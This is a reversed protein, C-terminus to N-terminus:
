AGECNEPIYEEFKEVLRDLGKQRATDYANTGTADELVPCKGVEELFFMAISENGSIVAAQLVDRGEIGSSNSGAGETLLLRAVSPDDFANQAAHFIPPEIEEAEGGNVDFGINILYEVIQKEGWGAAWHLLPQKDEAYLDPNLLSAEHREVLVDVDGLLVYMHNFTLDAMIPVEFVSSAGECGSVKNRIDLRMQNVLGDDVSSGMHETLVNSAEILKQECKRESADTCAAALFPVLFPMLLFSKVTM